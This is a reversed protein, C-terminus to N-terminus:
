LTLLERSKQVIRAPYSYFAGLYRNRAVFRPLQDQISPLTDELAQEFCECAHRYLRLDLENREAIADRSSATLRLTVSNGRRKNLSAYYLRRWGLRARLLMLTEDFRESLGTVTINQSVNHMAEELMQEPSMKGSGGDDDRGELENSFKVSSLFRTQSNSASEDIDSNAYDALSMRSVPKYFPHPPSRRIHDYM